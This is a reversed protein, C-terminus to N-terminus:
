KTCEGKKAKKKGRKNPKWTATSTEVSSGHHALVSTTLPVSIFGLVALVALTKKLLQM